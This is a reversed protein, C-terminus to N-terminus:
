EDGWWKYKSLSPCDLQFCLARAAELSVFHYSEGTILDKVTFNYDPPPAKTFIKNKTFLLGQM